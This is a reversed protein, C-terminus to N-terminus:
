NSAYVSHCRWAICCRIADDTRPVIGSHDVLYIRVAYGSAEAQVRLVHGKYIIGKM